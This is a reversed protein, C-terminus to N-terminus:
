FWFTFWYDTNANYTFAADFFDVQSPTADNLQQRYFNINVDNNNGAHGYNAWGWNPTLPLASYSIRFLNTNSIFSGGGFRFYVQMSRGVINTPYLILGTLTSQSGANTTVTVSTLLNTNFMWSINTLQQYTPAAIVNSLGGGNGTFSGSIQNSANTLTVPSVENNTLVVAPLALLPLTGSTIRSANLNTVGGGNLTVIGDWTWSVPGVFGGVHDQTRGFWGSLSLQTEKGDKVTYQDDDDGDMGVFYGNNPGNQTVTGTPENFTNLDSILAIHAGGITGSILPMESGLFIYDAQESYLDYCEGVQIQGRPTAVMARCELSHIYGIDWVQGCLDLLICSGIHMMSNTSWTNTFTHGPNMMSVSGFQCNYISGWDSIHCVIGDALDGFTDDEFKSFNNGPAFVYAGILGRPSSSLNGGPYHATITYNTNILNTGGFECQSIHYWNANLKILAANCDVSSIFSIGKLVICAAANFGGQSPALISRQDLILAPPIQNTPSGIAPGTYFLRTAWVGNGTLTMHNTFIVATSLSYVAARNSVAPSAFKITLGGESSNTIYNFMNVLEQLGATTSASFNTYGIGPIWATKDAYLLIESGNTIAGAAAVAAGNVSLVNTATGAFTASTATAANGTLPGTFTGAVTAGTIVPNTIAIGAVVNTAVSAPGGSSGGGPTIGAQALENTLLKLNGHFINTGTKLAGTTPDFLIAPDASCLLPALIFITLLKKM